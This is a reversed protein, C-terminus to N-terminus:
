IHKLGHIEMVTCSLRTDDNVVICFMKDTIQGVAMHRLERVVTRRKKRNGGRDQCDV